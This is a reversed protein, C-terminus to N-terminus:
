RRAGGGGARPFGAGGWGMGRGARDGRPFLRGALIAALSSGATLLIVLVSRLAGRMVLRGRGPLQLVGRGRSHRPRGGSDRPHGGRVAAEAEGRPGARERP